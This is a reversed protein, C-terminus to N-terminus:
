EGNQAIEYMKKVYKRDLVNKFSQTAKIKELIEVREDSREGRCLAKVEKVVTSVTESGNFVINNKEVVDAIDPYTNRLDKLNTGCIIIPLCDLCVAEFFRHWSFTDVCYSPIVFTVKSLGLEAYYADQKINLKATGEYEFSSINLKSNNELYSKMKSLYPIYPKREPAVCTSRFAVDYLKEKTYSKTFEYVYPEFLPICKGLGDRQLLYGKKVIADPFIEEVYPELPDIFYQFIEIGRFVAERLILHSTVIKNTMQFSFSRRFEGRDIQSIYYKPAYVNGHRCNSLLAPKFYILQEVDNNEFVEQIMKIIARFDRADQKNIKIYRDLQGTQKVFRPVFDPENNVVSLLMIDKDLAMMTKVISITTLRNNKNMNGAMFLLKM